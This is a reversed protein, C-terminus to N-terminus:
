NTVRFATGAGSAGGTATVGYLTGLADTVLGASPRFGDNVDVDADFSHLVKEKGSPSLRFVTGVSADGGGFSTAGYLNGDAGLTLGGVPNAGDDGGSFAHLVKITGNPKLRYATGAINVGGGVNTGYLNGDGDRVLGSSPYRGDNNGDFSHLVKLKGKPPLKFATGQNLAGGELTTGYLNGDSDMVLSGEPNAGDSGATFTHLVKTGGGFAVLEFVTGFSSDGGNKTTGYLNGAGDTIVGGVPNAGDSGGTFSYVVSEGGERDVAFVTGVNHDGGAETTGILANDVSLILDGTPFGGDSGGTFSYLV